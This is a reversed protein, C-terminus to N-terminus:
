ERLIGPFFSLFTRGKHLRTTGSHRSAPVSVSRFRHFCSHTRGPAAGSIGNTADNRAPRPERARM